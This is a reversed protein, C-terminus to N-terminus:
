SLSWMTEPSKKELAISQVWDGLVWLLVPRCQPKRTHVKGLLSNISPMSNAMRMMYGLQGHSTSIPAPVIGCLQCFVADGKGRPGQNRKQAWQCRLQMWLEMITVTLTQPLSPLSPHKRMQDEPCSQWGPLSSKIKVKNLLRFSFSHCIKLSFSLLGSQGWRAEHCEPSQPEYKM